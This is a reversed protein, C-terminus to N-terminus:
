GHGMIAVKYVRQLGIKEAKQHNGCLQTILSAALKRDCHM